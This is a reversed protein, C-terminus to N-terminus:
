NRIEHVVEALNKGVIKIAKHIRPATGLDEGIGPLAMTCFLVLVFGGYAITKNTSSDHTAIRRGRTFPLRFAWREKPEYEFHTTVELRHEGDVPELFQEAIVEMRRDDFSLEYQKGERLKKAVRRPMGLTFGTGSTERVDVNLPRGGARLIARSPGLVRCRFRNDKHENPTPVTNYSYEAM